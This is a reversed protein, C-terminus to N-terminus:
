FKKSIYLFRSFITAFHLSKWLYIAENADDSLGIGKVKQPDTKGPRRVIGRDGYTLPKTDHAESVLSWVEQGVEYGGSIERYCWAILKRHPATLEVETIKASRVGVCFGIAAVWRGLDVAFGWGSDNNVLQGIISIKVVTNEAEYEFTGDNDRIPYENGSVM